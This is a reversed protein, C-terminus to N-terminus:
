LASRGGRRGGPCPPRHVQTLSGVLVRVDEAFPPVLLHVGLSGEAPRSAPPIVSPSYRTSGVPVPPAPRTPSRRTRTGEGRSARPAPTSRSLSRGQPQRLPIPWEHFHLDVKAPMGVPQVERRVLPAAASFTLPSDPFSSKWSEVAHLVSHPSRRPLSGLPRGVSPGLRTSLSALKPLCALSSSGAAPWPRPCPSPSPRTPPRRTGPCWRTFHTPRFSKPVRGSLDALLPGWVGLTQPPSASFRAARPSPCLHRLSRRAQSAACEFPSEAAPRILSALGQSVSSVPSVSIVPPVTALDTPYWVSSEVPCWLWSTVSASSETHIKSAGPPRSRGSSRSKELKSDM